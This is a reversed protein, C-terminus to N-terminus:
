KKLIPNLEDNNRTRKGLVTSIRKVKITKLSKYNQNRAITYTKNASMREHSDKMRKGTISHVTPENQFGINRCGAILYIGPPVYFESKKDMMKGLTRGARKLKKGDVKMEKHYKETFNKTSKIKTSKYYKHYVKGFVKEESDKLNVYKSIKDITNKSFGVDVNREDSPNFGVESKIIKFLTKWRKQLVDESFKQPLPLRFIGNYDEMFSAFEIEHDPMPTDETYIAKFQKYSVVKNKANYGKAFVANQRSGSLLEVIANEDKFVDIREKTSQFCFGVETLFVFAYGSKVKIMKTSDKINSHCLMLRVETDKENYTVKM